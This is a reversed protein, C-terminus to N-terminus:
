NIRRPGTRSSNRLYIGTAKGYADLKRKIGDYMGYIDAIEKRISFEGASDVQGLADYDTILRAIANSAWEKWNRYAFDFADYDNNQFSRFSKVPHAAFQAAEEDSILM